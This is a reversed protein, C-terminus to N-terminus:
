IKPIIPAEKKRINNWDFNRFFPHIKIQQVTLRQNRNNMMGLILMKAETSVKVDDPFELFQLWNM